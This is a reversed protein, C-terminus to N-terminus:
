AGGHKALARNAEQLIDQLAIRWARAGMEDGDKIRTEAQHKIDVLAEVLESAPEGAATPPHAYLPTETYGAKVVVPSPETFVVPAYGEREYRWAVPEGATQALRHEAFAVYLAEWETKNLRLGTNWAREIDAQTPEIKDM